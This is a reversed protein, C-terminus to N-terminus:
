FTSVDVVVRHSLSDLETILMLTAAAVLSYTALSNAYECDSSM